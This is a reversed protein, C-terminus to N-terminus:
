QALDGLYWRRNLIESWDNKHNKYKLVMIIDSFRNLFYIQETHHDVNEM